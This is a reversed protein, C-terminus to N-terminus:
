TRHREGGTQGERPKGLARRVAALLEPIQFPKQVFETIEFGASQLTVESISFGSMLVIPLDPRLGRMARAAELGGMKPMTLDLIAADIEQQHDRFLALGEQGDGAVLVTLGAQKLIHAAFNRVAKEDDVILITGTGRWGEPKRSVAPTAAAKTSRPILLRFTSGQGPESRVQITGRHGRVIGQVVALGLGRGAFKTTFFPDFITEIVDATMGRGSDTVELYVYTGSPLDTHPHSSKVRLSADDIQMLGTRVTVTGGRKEISEFANTVLNMVVQRLQTADAEVPPLGPGLDYVLEADISVAAGLLGRMDRVLGSLDVSEIVFRGKGAYALIQSVLDAARRTNKGVEELMPVAPSDEPLLGSALEAYGLVPTLMNNLDHALGGALVGLSELKQAQFLQAELQRRDQEGGLITDILEHQRVSSVVLAENMATAQRRFVAAETAETVQIMVGAPHEDEGLIAWMVYSWYGPPSQRHEQEPLDEPTGTQFVREIAALCAKGAAGPVVEAFPRGILEDTAKGALRAFAPNLYRVVHEPGGVAVMPQPSRASFYRCLRPLDFPDAATASDTSMAREQTGNGSDSGDPSPPMEREGIRM